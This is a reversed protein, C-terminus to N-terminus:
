KTTVTIQDSEVSRSEDVARAHWSAELPDYELTIRMRVAAFPFVIDYPREGYHGMSHIRVTVKGDAEDGRVDTSFTFPEADSQQRQEKCCEPFLVQVKNINSAPITQGNTGREVASATLMFKNAIRKSGLM